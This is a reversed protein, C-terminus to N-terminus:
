LCGNLVSMSKNPPIVYVHNPQVKLNDSAQVVKMQTTRQLLEPMIGAHNPDLHQIVVYALGSNEPVNGFFEELAELGGASAGIGVIPFSLTDSSKQKM